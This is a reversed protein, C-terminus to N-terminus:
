FPRVYGEEEYIRTLSTNYMFEVMGVGGNRNKSIICEGVGVSSGPNYYEDRYLFIVLDADQELSGSERLDALNPRKDQRAEVSRNLQSLVIVPIGLDKAMAKLGRSIESVEQERSKGKSKVSEMLGVYDIVVLGCKGQNKLIRAKGWIDSLSQKAADDIYLDLDELKGLVDELIEEDHASLTAARFQNPDLYGEGIMIRDALKDVTMEISFIVPNKGQKAANMIISLAFATKGMSPRAAIIILDSDQWGNTYADLGKLPTKIGATKGDQRLKKRGFYNDISKNLAEPLSYGRKNSLLVSQLENVAGFLETIMDEPESSEDFARESLQASIRIAERMVYKQLIIMAHETAHAGSAVRSTLTSLYVAGGALELSEKKRLYETVTLIDVAGGTNFIDRIADYIRQHAEKYFVEGGPLLSIVNHLVHKDMLLAGLVVEELDLAQPPIKGYDMM